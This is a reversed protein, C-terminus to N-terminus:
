CMHTCLRTHPTTTHTYFTTTHTLTHTKQPHTVLSLFVFWVYAHTFIQTHKLKQIRVHRLYKQLRKNTHSDSFLSLTHTHTNIHTNTLTYAHTHTPSHTHTHTNICTHTNTLTYAHKHTHTHKHTHIRKHTNIQTNTLTNTYTHIIYIHRYLCLTDASIM